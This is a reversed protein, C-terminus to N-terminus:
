FHEAVNSSISDKMNEYLKKFFKWFVYKAYYKNNVVETSIPNTFKEM